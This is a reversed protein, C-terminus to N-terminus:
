RLGRTIQSDTWTVTTTIVNVSVNDGSGTISSSVTKRSGTVDLTMSCEDDGGEDASLKVTVISKDGDFTMELEAKVAAMSEGDPLPVDVTITDTCGPLTDGDGIGRSLWPGMVGSPETLGLEEVLTDSIVNGNEDVTETVTIRTQKEFSDALIGDRILEAASSVSLWTQQASRDNNVSRAASLASALIVSSVVAAVLVLLLAMLVTAGDKERLKKM